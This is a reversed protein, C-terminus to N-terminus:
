FMNLMASVIFRKEDCSIDLNGDYRETIDKISNLGFGHLTKDKKTTGKALSEKAIKEDISNEIEINLFKKHQSFRLMIDKEANTIKLCAEIANDILNGLLVCLDMEDIKGFDSLFAHCVFKINNQEMVQKKGNILADISTNKTYEINQRSLVVECIEDIKSLGKKDSKKVLERIAFLQNKLDHMTKDSDTQKDILEHLYIKDRELKLNDADLRYQLNLQRSYREFLYFVLVNAGILIIMSVAGILALGTEIERGFGGILVIGIFFTVIPYVIFLILLKNNVKMYEKKYKLAFIKVSVFAVLKSVLMGVTYNTISEVVKGVTLNLIASSTFGVLIECLSMFVFIVIVGLIQKIRSIDYLLTLLIISFFLAVMRILSNKVFIYVVSMVIIFAVYILINFIRKLYKRNCLTGFFASIILAELMFSLIDVIYFKWSM